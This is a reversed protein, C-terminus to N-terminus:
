FDNEEQFAEEEAERRMDEEIEKEVQYESFSEEILKPSWTREILGFLSKLFDRIQDESSIEEFLNRQTM